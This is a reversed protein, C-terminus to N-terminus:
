GSAFASRSVYLSSKPLTFVNYILNFERDLEDDGGSLEIDLARLESRETDTFVGAGDSVRPLDSSCM